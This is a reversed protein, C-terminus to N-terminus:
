AEPIWAQLDSVLDFAAELEAVTGYRARLEAGVAGDVVQLEVVMGAPKEAYAAALTAVADPTQATTTVISILYPDTGSLNAWVRPAPSLSSLTREVAARIADRTGRRQVRDAQGVLDRAQSLSAGSIDVGVLWALWGLWERRIAQPNALECTGTASTDPDALTLLDSAGALGVCGADVLRFAVQEDDAARLFDPLLRYAQDAATM